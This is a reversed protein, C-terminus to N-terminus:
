GRCDTDVLLEDHAPEWPESEERRFEVLYGIVDGAEGQDSPPQWSLLLDKELTVVVDPRPPPGPTSKKKSPKEPSLSAKPPSKSRESTEESTETISARSLDIGVGEDSEVLTGDYGNSRPNGENDFYIDSPDVPIQKISRTTTVKTVRTVKQTSHSQRELSDEPYDSFSNGLGNSEPDDLHAEYIYTTRSSRASMQGPLHTVYTHAMIPDNVVEENTYNGWDTPVIDEPLTSVLTDVQESTYVEKKREVKKTTRSSEPSTAKVAAAVRTCSTSPQNNNVRTPSTAASEQEEPIPEMPYSGTWSGNLAAPAPPPRSNSTSPANM